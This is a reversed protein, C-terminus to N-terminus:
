KWQVRSGFGDLLLQPSQPGFEHKFDLLFDFFEVLCFEDPHNYLKVLDGVYHWYNLLVSPNSNENIIAVEVDDTGFM